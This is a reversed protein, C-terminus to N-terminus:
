AVAYDKGWISSRGSLIDEYLRIHNALFQGHSFHAEVRHRGARGWPILIEPKLKSRLAATLGFTDGAPVLFGTENQVVMGPIGGTQFGIVPTGAAMTELVVLPQNDALSCFLFVDAAGYFRSLADRRDVYAAYHYDFDALAERDKDAMQGLLLLFPKQDKVGRLADLAHRNGKREDWFHGASLLVILRDQPLGLEARLAAKDRPVFVATDVGNPIVLPPRDLLGSSFAMDSMWQSPTVLTVRRQAHLGKKLWHWFRSFDFRTDIPWQGIQPCKGCGHKFRECGMPYLCGGTFASCDHLTWVVPRMLSLVRLSQPSIASSLDHFHFLDYSKARGQNLFTVLEFPLVEPLGFRKTIEQLRCIYRDFRGYVAHRTANMGAGSWRCWHDAHYGANNLLGSLEEAVRSAGGGSADAKSAVAIRM